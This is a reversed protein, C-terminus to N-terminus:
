RLIAKGLVLLRSMRVRLVHLVVIVVNACLIFCIRRIRCLRDEESLQGTYLVLHAGKLSSSGDGAYLTISAVGTRRHAGCSVAESRILQRIRVDESRTESGEFVVALRGKPCLPTVLRMYTLAVDEAGM